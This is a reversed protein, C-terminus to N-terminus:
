APGGLLLCGWVLRRIDNRQASRQTGQAPAENVSSPDLFPDAVYALKLRLRTINKQQFNKATVEGGPYSCFKEIWGEARDLGNGLELTLWLLWANRFDLFVFSTVQDEQILRFVIQWGQQGAQFHKLFAKRFLVGFHPTQLPPTVFFCQLHSMVTGAHVHCVNRREQKEPM